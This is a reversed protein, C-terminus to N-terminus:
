KRGVKIEPVDFKELTPTDPKVILYVNRNKSWIRRYMIMLETYRRVTRKDHGVNEIIL